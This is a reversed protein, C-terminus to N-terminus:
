GFCFRVLCFFYVLLLDMVPFISGDFQFWSTLLKNYLFHVIVGCDKHLPMHIFIILHVHENKEKANKRKQETILIVGPNSQSFHSFSVRSGFTMQWKHWQLGM